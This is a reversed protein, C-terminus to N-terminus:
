KVAGSIALGMLTIAIGLIVISLALAIIGKKLKQEKNIDNGILWIALVLVAVLFPLFLFIHEKTEMIVSHVWFHQGAKIIPKVKDGYYLTYYYGGSFWSALFSFLGALSLIKLKKLNANKILGLLVATFLVIGILGLIVHSILLSQFLPSM